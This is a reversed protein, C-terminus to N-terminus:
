IIRRGLYVFWNVFIASLIIIAAILNIRSIVKDASDYNSKLLWIRYPLQWLVFAFIFPGVPHCSLAAKLNGHAALCLSRSIGCLACKLGFTEKLFCRLPWRYGFIFLGTEDARFLFCGTIIVGCLVIIIIHHTRSPTKGSTQM